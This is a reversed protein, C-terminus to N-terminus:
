LFHIGSVIERDDRWSEAEIGVQRSLVEGAEINLYNLVVVM